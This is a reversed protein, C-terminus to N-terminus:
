QETRDKINVQEPTTQEGERVQEVMSQRPQDRRQIGRAVPMRASCSPSYTVNKEKLNVCNKRHSNCAQIDWFKLKQLFTLM